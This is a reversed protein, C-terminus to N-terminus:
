KLGRWRCAFVQHAPPQVQKSPRRRPWSSTHAHSRSRATGGSTLPPRQFARMTPIVFEAGEKIGSPWRSTVTKTRTYFRVRTRATSTSTASASRKWGGFTHYALPVPIPVNVGVMGVKIRSAFDRAADGDRTFIATGNGYEHSTPILASATRMPSARPRGVAGPRLDRGQLHGHGPSATSCAAASSIATRTARCRSVAATSSWSRRGGRRRTSIAWCRQWISRPSWRASIPTM